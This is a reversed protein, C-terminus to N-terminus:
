WFYTVYLKSRFLSFLFWFNSAFWISSKLFHVTITENASSKSLVIVIKGFIQHRACVEDEEYTDIQLWIYDSKLNNNNILLHRNM